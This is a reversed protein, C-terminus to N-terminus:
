SCCAWCRIQFHLSSACHVVTNRWEFKTPTLVVVAVAASRGGPAIAPACEDIEAQEITDIGTHRSVERAVGGDGGGVILM